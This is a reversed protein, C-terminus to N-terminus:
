GGYIELLIDDKSYVEASIIKGGSDALGGSAFLRAAKETPFIQRPYNSYIQPWYTPEWILKVYPRSQSDILQTQVPSGM